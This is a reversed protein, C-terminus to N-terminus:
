LVDMDKVAMAAAAEQKKKKVGNRRNEVRWEMEVEGYAHSGRRRKGDWCSRRM